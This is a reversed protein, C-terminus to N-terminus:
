SGYEVAWRGCMEATGSMALVLFTARHRQTRLSMQVKDALWTPFQRIMNEIVVFLLRSRRSRSASEGSTGLNEDPTYMVDIELERAAVRALGPVYFM